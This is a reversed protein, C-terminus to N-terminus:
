LFSKANMKNGQSGFNIRVSQQPHLKASGPPKQASNGSTTALTRPSMPPRTTLAVSVTNQVATISGVTWTATGTSRLAWSEERFQWM